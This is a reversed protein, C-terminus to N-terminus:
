RGRQETRTAGVFRMGGDEAALAASVFEPREAPTLELSPGGTIGGLAKQFVNTLSEGRAFVALLTDSPLEALADKYTADDALSAGKPVQQKFRDIKAQSDSLVLWDDLEGVLLQEDGPQQQAANGKEVAALFKEKDKPKTVAVVNGGGAEFDLWVLSIEDGLAPKVDREWDLKM